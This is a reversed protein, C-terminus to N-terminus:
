ARAELQTGHAKRSFKRLHGKNSIGSIHLKPKIERINKKKALAAMERDTMFTVFQWIDDESFKKMDFQVFKKNMHKLPTWDVPQSVLPRIYPMCVNLIYDHDIDDPLNYGRRPNRVMWKAAAVVSIAVQLTTAQQHPVM